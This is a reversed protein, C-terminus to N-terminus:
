TVLRYGLDTKAVVGDTTLRALTDCLTVTRIRCLQRLEPFAVPASCAALAHLIRESASRTETPPQPGREDVIRLALPQDDDAPLELYLDDPSAAARHEVSLRLRERQRSLYLNSDGWAHFESSGRLAQGARLHSAGKRLHHVLCVSCAFTRELQRLFALLPAVEQVQNEDIRHLRVFPDLILLRPRLHAVTNHLRQRDDSRDLRLSPATILYLDLARLDVHHSAAIGRLRQHVTALSDEAAFILVPGPAQLAFRGLCPTASAVAVALELALFSKCCKPEGGILGVAREAWLSDILWAPRPPEADLDAARRIALIDANM